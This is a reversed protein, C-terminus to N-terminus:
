KNKLKPFNEAYREKINRQERKKEGKQFHILYINSNYHKEKKVTSNEIM